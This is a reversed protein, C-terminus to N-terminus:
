YYIKSNRIEFTGVKVPMQFLIKTVTFPKFLIKQKQLMIKTQFYLDASNGCVTVM